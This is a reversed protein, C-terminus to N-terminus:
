PVIITSAVLPRVRRLWDGGAGYAWGVIDPLWLLPEHRPERHVYTLLSEGTTRIARSIVQRDARDCANGRSELTMRQIPLPALRQVLATLCAARGVELPRRRTELIWSCPALGAVTSLILRRRRDSETAFHIREQGPLLMQRLKSRVTSTDATPLMTVIILYTSRFSEDVFRADDWAVLLPNCSMAAFTRWSM